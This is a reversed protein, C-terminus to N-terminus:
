SHSSLTSVVLKVLSFLQLGVILVRLQMLYLSWSGDSVFVLLGYVHELLHVVLCIVDSFTWCNLGCELRPCVKRVKGCVYHWYFQIEYMVSPLRCSIDCIFQMLIACECPFAFLTLVWTVKFCKM